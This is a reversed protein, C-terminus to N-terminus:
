VFIFLNISFNFCIRGEVFFIIRDCRASKMAHKASANTCILLKLIDFTNKVNRTHKQIASTISAIQARM